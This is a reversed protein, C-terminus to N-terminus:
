TKCKGETASRTAPANSRTGTPKGRNKDATAATTTAAPKAAAKKDKAAQKKDKPAAPVVPSPVINNGEDNDNLFAYLNTSAVSAM